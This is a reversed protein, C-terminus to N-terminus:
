ACRYILRQGAIETESYDVALDRAIADYDIYFQLREPIEGFLGEDVFQEALEKMSDLHYIDMDISDPNDALQDHGYGCEGVAIVYRTKQDEEWDEAADIFAAINCQSLGWAKAM